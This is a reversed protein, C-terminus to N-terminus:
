KGNISLLMRYMVKYAENLQKEEWAKERAKIVEDEVDRTNGLKDKLKLLEEVMNDIIEPMYRSECLLDAYLSQSQSLLAKALTAQVRYSTGSLEELLELSSPLLKALMLNLLYVLSITYSVARDHSEADVVMLKCDPLLERALKLEEELSVVPVVAVKEGKLTSVGPGFLPHLSLLRVDPRMELEVRAKSLVNSKLSTIEAVVAGRRSLKIAKATVEPAARMPVSVLVIDAEAARRLSRVAEAKLESALARAKEADVDYVILKFGREKFYRALRSGMAGAGVISILHM